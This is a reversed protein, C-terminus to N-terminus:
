RNQTLSGKKSFCIYANFDHDLILSLIFIFNENPYSFIQYRLRFVITLGIIINVKVAWRFEDNYRRASIKRIFNYLSVAVWLFISHLFAIFRKIHAITNVYLEIMYWDNSTQKYNINLFSTFLSLSLCFYWQYSSPSNRSWRLQSWSTVWWALVALHCRWEFPKLLRASLISSRCFMLGAKWSFQVSLDLLATFLRCRLQWAVPSSSWGLHEWLRLDWPVDAPLNSTWRHDRTILSRILGFCCCQLAWNLRTVTGQDSHSSAWETIAKSGFGM